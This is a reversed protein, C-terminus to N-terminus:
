ARCRELLEEAAPAAQLISIKGARALAVDAEAHQPDKKSFRVVMSAALATEEDSDSNRLIGLPGPRSTNILTLDDEKM